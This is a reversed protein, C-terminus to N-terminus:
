HKEEKENTLGKREENEVKESGYINRLENFTKKHYRNVNEDIGYPCCYWKKRAKSWTFGAAKIQDRYPYTNGDLWVWLGVVEINIGPYFVIKDIVERLKKDTDTAAKQRTTTQKEKQADSYSENNYGPDFARNIVQDYELNIQKCIEADGGNDPHYRKILEIYRKRIDAKTKCGSFFIM